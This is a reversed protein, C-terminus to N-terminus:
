HQCRSCWVTTRGGITERELAVRHIPCLGGAQWREHFLWGEPPDSMKDGIHHLAARCVFRSMKWLRKLSDSDLRGSKQRPNIKARWLIEDAMWNGVGPFGNQLLLSAKIPLQSHRKLFDTMTALTFSASLLSPPLKTWWAPESDGQHFQIRGFLRPDSFILACEKQYLVLHDHRGPEFPVRESRLKGTMGLHIGLWLNRSFHFLMQKGRAWSELLVSGPFLTRMQLVDVGRFIRKTDHMTIGVIKGGLGPNWRNRYYEVEALEPM